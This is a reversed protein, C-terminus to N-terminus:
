GRLVLVFKVASKRARVMVKLISHPRAAASPTKRGTGSGSLGTCYMKMQM